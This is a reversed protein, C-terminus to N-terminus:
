APWKGIHLWEDEPLGRLVADVRELVKQEAAYRIHEGLRAMKAITPTAGWAALILPPPPEWSGGSRRRQPLMKWLRNWSDPMPCVRGNAAVFELLAALRPDDDEAM